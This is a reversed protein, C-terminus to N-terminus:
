PTQIHGARPAPPAANRATQAVIRMLAYNKKV